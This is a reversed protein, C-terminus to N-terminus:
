GPQGREAPAVQTTPSATRGFGLLCGGSEPARETEEAPGGRTRGCGDGRAREQADAPGCPDAGGVPQNMLLRSAAEQRVLADVDRGVGPAVRVGRRDQEHVAPLAARGGEPAEDGCEGCCAEAGDGVVRRCPAAGAPAGAGREVVDGDDSVQGIDLVFWPGAHDAVGGSAEGFAEGPDRVDRDEAERLVHEDPRDSQRPCEM